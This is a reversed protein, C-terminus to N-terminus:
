PSPFRIEDGAFEGPHTVRRIRSPDGADLGDRLGIEVLTALQGAQIHAILRHEARAVDVLADGCLGRRDLGALLAALEPGPPMEALVAVDPAGRVDM